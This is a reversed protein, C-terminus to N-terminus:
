GRQRLHRDVEAAVAAPAEMPVFHTVGQLRTHRAGLHAATEAAHDPPHTVSHEATVLTTPVDIEEVATWVEGFDDQSFTAAEWEPRCKLSWGGRDEFGHDVYVRLVEDPWTAFVEKDAFARYAEDRSSFRPRRRRAAEAWSNGMKEMLDLLHPPLLAPEIVVLADFVRHRARAAAVAMGGLSHGVGVVRGTSGLESSVRAVDGAYDWVSPGCDPEPSDGHGRLDVAALTATVGRAQLARVTPAWIEKHFGTAHAFVVLDGDGEWVLTALDVDGGRVRYPTAGDLIEELSPVDAESMQFVTDM